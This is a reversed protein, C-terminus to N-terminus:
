QGNKNHKNVVLGVNWGIRFRLFKKFSICFLDGSGTMRIPERSGYKYTSSFFDYPHELGSNKDICIWKDPFGFFAEGGILDELTTRLLFPRIDQTLTRLEYTGIYLSNEFVLLEFKNMEQRDQPDDPRKICTKRNMHSTSDISFHHFLLELNIVTEDDYFGLSSRSDRYKVQEWTVNDRSRESKTESNRTKRAPDKESSTTNFRSFVKYGIDSFPVMSDHDLHIIEPELETEKHRAKEAKKERDSRPQLSMPTEMPSFDIDKGEIEKKSLETHKPDEQVSSMTIVPPILYENSGEPEPSSKSEVPNSDDLLGRGGLEKIYAQIILKHEKIVSSSFGDKLLERRFEKWVAKDDGSYNSLLHATIGNVALKIEKLDGGADHMQKEIRGVGGAAIMNIYLSLVSTHDTIRRRLEAVDVLEGSGFRVQRWLKTASREEVSLASYKAIIKALRELNRICGQIVPALEKRM